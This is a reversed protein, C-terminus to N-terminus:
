GGQRTATSHAIDRTVSDMHSQGVSHVMPCANSRLVILFATNALNCQAPPARIAPRCLSVSREGRLEEFAYRRATIGKDLADNYPHAHQCIVSPLV